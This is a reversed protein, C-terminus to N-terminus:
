CAPVIMGGVWRMPIRNDAKYDGEDWVVIRPSYNM